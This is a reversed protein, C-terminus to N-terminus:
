LGRRVYKSILKDKSWLSENKVNCDIGIVKQLELSLIFQQNHMLGNFDLSNCLLQLTCRDKNDLLCVPAGNWGDLVFLTVVIESGYPLMVDM